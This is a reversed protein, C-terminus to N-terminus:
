VVEESRLVPRAQLSLACWMVLYHALTAVGGSLVHQLFQIKWDQDGRPTIIRRIFDM